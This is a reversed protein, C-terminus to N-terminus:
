KKSGLFFPDWTLSGQGYGTYRKKPMVVWPLKVDKRVRAEFFSLVTRLENAFSMGSSSGSRLSNTEWNCLCCGLDSGKQRLFFGPPTVWLFIGLKECFFFVSCTVGKWENNPIKRMGGMEAMGLFFCNWSQSSHDLFDNPRKVFKKVFYGLVISLLGVEAVGGLVSFHRRVWLQNNPVWFFTINAGFLNKTTFVIFVNRPNRFGLLQKTSKKWHM